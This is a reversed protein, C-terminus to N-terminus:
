MWRNMSEIFWGVWVLGFLDRWIWFNDVIDFALLSQEFNHLFLICWRNLIDWHSFMCVFYKSQDMHMAHLMRYLHMTCFLKVDDANSMDWSSYRDVLYRIYVLDVTRHHFLMAVLCYVLHRVLMNDVHYPNHRSTLMCRCHVICQDMHFDLKNTHLFYVSHFVDGDALTHTYIQIQRLHIHLTSMRARCVHICVDHHIHRSYPRCRNSIGFDMRQLRHNVLIVMRQQYITGLALDYVLKYICSLNCEM